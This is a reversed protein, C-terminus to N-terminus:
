AMAALAPTVSVTTSATAQMEAAMVDSGTTYDESLGCV